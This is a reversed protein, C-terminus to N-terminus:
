HECGLAACAEVSTSNAVIAHAEATPHFAGSSTRGDLDLVGSNTDDTLNKARNDIMMYVDNQTRLLRTRPRYPLFDSANFPTFDLGGACPVNGNRPLHLSEALSGSPVCRLNLLDWYTFCHGSPPRSEADRTACFGRKAFRDVHADVVDYPGSGSDKLAFDRLNQNLVNERFNEVSQVDAPSRIATIPGEATSVPLSQVGSRAECLSDDLGFGKPFATVTMGRNGFGCLAGNEDELARPYLPVIVKARKPDGFGEALGFDPLLQKDIVDRLVGYRYVTRALLLETRECDADCPKGAEALQPVFGDTLKRVTPDLILGKVWNSFQVDNIGIDVFMLDVARKFRNSDASCRTVNNKLTSLVSAESPLRSKWAAVSLRAKVASNLADDNQAPPQRYDGTVRVYSRPDCLEQYALGFAAGHGLVGHDTSPDYEVGQYAFLLGSFIEAGSCGYPLLTVSRHPSRLAVDLATRVQWSYVSRHCWRDTWQARTSPDASRKPVGLGSWAQDTFVATMEPNGEGSTFSDGFGMILQDKPAIDLSQRSGDGAIRTLHLKGEVNTPNAGDSPVYVRIEDCEAVDEVTWPGGGAIIQGSKDIFESEPKDGAVFGGDASWACPGELPAGEDYVRVIWGSPRVYDGYQKCNSHMRVQPDWCTDTNGLPHKADSRHGLLSAWGLRAVDHFNPGGSRHEEARLHEILEAVDHFNSNRWLSPWGNQRAGADQLPSSWFDAGNLFLELEEPTAARDHRGFFIDAAVRQIAVDSPYVFYRFNREVEWELAACSSVTLCFTAFLASFFVRFGSGRM